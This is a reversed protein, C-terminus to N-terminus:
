RTDVIGENRTAALRKAPDELGRVRLRGLATKGFEALLDGPEGGGVGGDLAQGSL